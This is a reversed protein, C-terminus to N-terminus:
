VSPNMKRLVELLEDVPMNMENYVKILKVAEQYGKRRALMSVNIADALQRSERGKEYGREYANQLENYYKRRKIKM